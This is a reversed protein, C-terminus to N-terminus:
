LLENIQKPTLGVGDHGYDKSKYLDSLLVTAIIKKGCKPCFKENIIPYIGCCETALMRENFECIIEKVKTYPKIEQQWKDVENKFNDFNRILLGNLKLQMEKQKKSQTGIETKLEIALFKGSEKDFLILDQWGKLYDSCENAMGRYNSNNVCVWLSNPIHLYPIHLLDLYKECQQQLIAEPNTSKIRRKKAIFKPFKAFEFGQKLQKNDIKIM